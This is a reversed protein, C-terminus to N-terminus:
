KNLERKLKANEEMLNRLSLNMSTVNKQVAEANKATNRNLLVLNSNNQQLEIIEKSKNTLNQELEKIKRSMTLKEERTVQAVQTLNTIEEVHKSNHERCQQEAKEMLSQNQKLEDNTRRLEAAEFILVKKELQCIEKTKQDNLELNSRFLNQKLKCRYIKNKNCGNSQAVSITLKLSYDKANWM